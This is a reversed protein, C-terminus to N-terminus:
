GIHGGVCFDVNLVAQGNIGCSDTATDPEVVSVAPAPAGAEPALAEPNDVFAAVQGMAQARAPPHLPPEAGAPRPVLELRLTLRPTFWLQGSAPRYRVPFVRVLAIDCGAMRQVSVLEAASEPYFNDSTYIRRSAGPLYADRGVSPRSHPQGGYEIQWEGGIRVPEESPVVAAQGVTWGAPLVLRATRFPLAPEGIRHLQGCGPVVLRTHTGAPEMQPAEFAYPASVTRGGGDPAAPASAAFALGLLFPGAGPLRLSFGKRVSTRNM